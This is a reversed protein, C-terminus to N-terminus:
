ATRASRCRRPRRCERALLVEVAATDLEAGRVRNMRVIEPADAERVGSKSGPRALFERLPVVIEVERTVQTRREHELVDLLGDIACAIEQRARANLDDKSVPIRLVVMRLTLPESRPTMSEGHESAASAPGARRLCLRRGAGCLMAFM